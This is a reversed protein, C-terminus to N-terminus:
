DAALGAAPSVRAARRSPLVGALLGALAAVLAVLAVQAWPVVLSVEEIAQGVVAEVGIWAYVTGLTAGLVGAVGALLVAEASLTFRLRRRTLGLARLLAHERTRELVSLGLTSGVGVVAILVGVALMAVVAGFFV